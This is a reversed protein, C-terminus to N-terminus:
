YPAESITHGDDTVSLTLVTGGDPQDVICIFQNGGQHSCAIDDANVTETAPSSPNQNLLNALASAVSADSPPGSSGLLLALYIGFTLLSVLGIGVAHRRITAYKETVGVYIATGWGLVPVIAGIIYATVLASRDRILIPSDPGPTTQPREPSEPPSTPSAASPELPEDTFATGNWWRLGGASSPDPYWGPPRPAATPREAV